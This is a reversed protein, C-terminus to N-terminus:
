LNKFQASCLFSFYRVKLIVADGRFLGLEDMKAQSVAVVSNDDQESQDVILRNPKAKDKLIATSLEDNKKEKDSQHTPVSAM